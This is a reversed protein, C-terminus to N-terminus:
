IPMGPLRGTCQMRSPASAQFVKPRPHADENQPHAAAVCPRLLVRVQLFVPRSFHTGLFALM